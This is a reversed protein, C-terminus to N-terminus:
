EFTPRLSEFEAREADNLGTDLKKKKLAEYRARMNDMNGTTNDMTGM